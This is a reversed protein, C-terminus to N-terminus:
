KESLPDIKGLPLLVIPYEARPLDLIRRVAKDDFAGVVVTGLEKSVAQLYVNQVVAGAEIHVYRKHRRGYKVRTRKYVATVVIIAAAHRISKQWPAASSLSDRTDLSQVRNLAHRYPNYRYTGPELEFVDGVVVHLELPYLAGASPATRRKVVGIDAGPALREEVGQAAWLIGSLESLLLPERAFERVSRRLKLAQEVTM